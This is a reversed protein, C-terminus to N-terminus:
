PHERCQKDWTQRVTTGNSGASTGKIKWQQGATKGHRSPRDRQSGLTDTPEATGGPGAPRAPQLPQCGRGLPVPAGACFACPRRRLLSIFIVAPFSFKRGQASPAPPPLKRRWEGDNDDDDNDDDNDLKVGFANYPHRGGAFDGDQYSFAGKEGM